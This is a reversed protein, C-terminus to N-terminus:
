VDLQVMECSKTLFVNYIRFSYLKIRTFVEVSILACKTETRNVSMKRSEPQVCGIIRHSFKNRILKWFDCQSVIHEFRIPVLHVSTQVVTKM